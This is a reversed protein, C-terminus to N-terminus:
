FLFCGYICCIPECVGIKLMQSWAHCCIGFTSVCVNVITSSDQKNSGHHLTIYFMGNLKIKLKNSTNVFIRAIQCFKPFRLLM